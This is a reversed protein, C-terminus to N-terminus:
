GIVWAIVIVGLIIPVVVCLILWANFNRGGEKSFGDMPIRFAFPPLFSSVVFGIFPVVWQLVDAYPREPPCQEDAFSFWGGHKEPDFEEYCSAILFGREELHVYWAIFIMWTLNLAVLLAIAGFWRSTRDDITLGTDRRNPDHRDPPM